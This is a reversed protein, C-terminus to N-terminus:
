LRLYMKLFHHPGRLGKMSQLMAAFQEKKKNNNTQKQWLSFFHM